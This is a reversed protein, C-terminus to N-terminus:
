YMINELSGEKTKVGDKLTKGYPFAIYDEMSLGEKIEIYSGYISRGTVVPQKKLRENEDRVYVYSSGDDDQRIYAKLIFLDDSFGDPSTNSM